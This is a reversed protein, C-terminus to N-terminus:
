IDRSSLVPHRLVADLDLPEDALELAAHARDVPDVQADLRALDVAEEPGVAGALRRGHQHEGRQQRGGRAARTDRPVVHHVVPRRHPPRDAGRQLLGREVRQEGPAVVHAELRGQLADRLRLPARAAVRQELAHPQDVRGVAAHAAVRAAHLAPEVQREREHVRRADQEEVLGGRPEVRLAARVQPLLDRAQGPLVAHGDEEGRLVELLRVHEGVPDRDDVMAPDHSAARRLRQLRLDAPRRELDCGASRASRSATAPTSSRKPVATVAGGPAAATRSRPPTSASGSTTRASSASSRATTSKRSCAGVSSSTKRALGAAARPRARARAPAPVRIVPCTSSIARRDSSCVSRWGAM